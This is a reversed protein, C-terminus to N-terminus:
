YRNQNILDSYYHYMEKELSFVTKYDSNIENIVKRDPKGLLNYDLYSVEQYSNNKIQRIENERYKGKIKLLISPMNMLVYTELLPRYKKFFTLISSINFIINRKSQEKPIFKLSVPIDYFETYYDYLQKLTWQPNSILTYTGPTESNKSFKIIAEAVSNIFVTNTLDAENGDIFAITNQNLKERFSTNVSQLFGHVQGLRFNYTKVGFKKGMDLCKKEAKRKIFSYSSHSIAYSKIKKEAPPMGYAMISSMYIYVSNGPISSIINELIKDVSRSISFIEGAPYTFDIVANCSQLKQKLEAKNNLDIFDSSIGHLDFFVKSYTSRIFCVLEIDTFNKKIEM